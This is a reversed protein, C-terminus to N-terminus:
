QNWLLVPGFDMKADAASQQLAHRRVLKGLMQEIDCVLEIPATCQQDVRVLFRPHCRDIQM